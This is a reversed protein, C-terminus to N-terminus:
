FIGLRKRRRMAAEQKTTTEPKWEAATQWRTDKGPAAGADVYGDRIQLFAEQRLRTLYARLKEEFLPRALREAIEEEVQEYAALGKQFRQEVRLILFGVPVRVPDIVSGQKAQFVIEEIERRLQGRRYSAVEGFREGHRAREVMRKAESAAEANEGATKGETSLFLQQLRVEDERVFEDRHEDYYKRRAAEGIVIGRQVEEGIVREILVQDRVQRRLEALNFGNQEPDIIANRTQWEGIRRNVESEVSLNLERAKQLLLLEDIQVGLADRRREVDGMTIIDGNVKCVIQEVVRVDAALGCGLSALIVVRFMNTGFHLGSALRIILRIFRWGDRDTTRRPCM